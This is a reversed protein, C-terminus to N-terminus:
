SRAIRLSFIVSCKDDYTLGAPAETRFRVTAPKFPAATRMTADVAPVASPPATKVVRLRQHLSCAAGDAVGLVHLPDCYGIRESHRRLFYFYCYELLSTCPVCLTWQLASKSRLQPRGLWSRMTPRRVRGPRLCM